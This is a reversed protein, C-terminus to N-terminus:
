PKRSLKKVLKDSIERSHDIIRGPRVDKESVELVIREDALDGTAGDIAQEGVFDLYRTFFSMLKGDRYAPKMANRVSVFVTEDVDIRFLDEVRM